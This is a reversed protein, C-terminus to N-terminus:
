QEEKKKGIFTVRSRPVFYETSGVLVTLHGKHQSDYFAHGTRNGLKVRGLPEGIM